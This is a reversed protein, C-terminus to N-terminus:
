LDSSSKDLRHKFREYCDSFIPTRVSESQGSAYVGSCVYALDQANGHLTMIKRTLVNSAFMHRMLPVSIVTPLKYAILENRYNGLRVGRREVIGVTERIARVAQKLLVSSDMLHTAARASDRIDGNAAAVSVVAANIAMHIWIWELMDHPTELSINCAQFLAELSSYNAISSKDARELMIHDFVCGHLIGDKINGGAVPYGLIYPRGEMVSELDSRDSWIGSFLVITGRLGRADLNQVVSRIGECPVSVIIFDYQKRSTQRYEYNGFSEVGHRSGRGDLLEVDISAHSPPAHHTMHETHHGAKSFLYGYISGIVGTGVM